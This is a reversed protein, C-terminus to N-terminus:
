KRHWIVAHRNGSKTTAWGVIWGNDNIATAASSPGGLTGLDIMKGNQWVYAHGIAYGDKAKRPTDATGVIWGRRNIDVGISSPGGLTGLDVGKDNQWLYAHRFPYGYKDKRTTDVLGVIRGREDIVDARTLRGPRRIKGNQWLFAVYPDEYHSSGRPQASGVIQGRENIDRPSSYRGGLTGISRMRGNTWLFAKTEFFTGIFYGVRNLGIIQGHDNIGVAESLEGGLTSLDRMSGEQWLFAHHPPLGGNTDEDRNETDAEGVVQGRENIDVAESEWLPEGLTGLDRMAGNEWLFAHTIPRGDSQQGIEAGGVVQGRNNVDRAESNRGDLTGLDQLKGNTWLFAHGVANGREDTATTTATGVIQGRENIAIAESNPGGFTGLDRIVWREASPASATISATWATGGALSVVAGALLVTIPGSVPRMHPGEVPQGVGFLLAVIAGVGLAVTQRVRNTDGRKQTPHSSAQILRLGRLPNGNM